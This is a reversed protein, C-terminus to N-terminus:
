AHHAVYVGFEVSDDIRNDAFVNGRGAYSFLAVRSREIQNEVIEAGRCRWLGIAAGSAGDFACDRVVLEDVCYATVLGNFRQPADPLPYTPREAADVARAHPLSNGRFVLGSVAVASLRSKKDRPRIDLTVAGCGGSEIITKGPTGRLTLPAEIALEDARYVGPLIDLPVRARVADDIAGQLTRRTANPRESGAGLVIRDRMAEVPYSWACETAVSASVAAISAPLSVLFDRRNM